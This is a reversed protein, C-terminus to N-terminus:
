ATKAFIYSNFGLTPIWLVKYAFKYSKKYSSPAKVFYNNISFQYKIFQVSWGKIIDAEFLVKLRFLKFIKLGLTVFFIEFKGLFNQLDEGLDKIIFTPQRNSIILKKIM